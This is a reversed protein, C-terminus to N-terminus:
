VFCRRKQHRFYDLTEVLQEKAELYYQQVFLLFGAKIRAYFVENTDESTRIIEYLLNISEQSENLQLIQEKTLRITVM